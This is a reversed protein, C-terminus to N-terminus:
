NWSEEILWLFFFDLCNLVVGWIGTNVEGVFPILSQVWRVNRLGLETEM